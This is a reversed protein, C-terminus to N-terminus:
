SKNLFEETPQTLGFDDILMVSAYYFEDWKGIMQGFRGWWFDKGGCSALLEQLRGLNLFLQAFRENFMADSVTGNHFARSFRVMQHLCHEVQNKYDGISNSQVFTVPGEVQGCALGAKIQACIEGYTMNSIKYSALFLLIDTLYNINILPDM